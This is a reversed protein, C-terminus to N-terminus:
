EMCVWFGDSAFRHGLLTGAPCTDWGAPGLSTTAGSAVEYLTGADGVVNGVYFKKSALDNRACFWFGNSQFDNGVETTGEPCQHWGAVRLRATGFSSDVVDLWGADARVTGFYGEAGPPGAPVPGPLHVLLGDGAPLSVYLRAGLPDSVTNAPEFAGTAVDLLRVVGAASAFTVDSETAADHDRNVLLAYADDGVSFLGVTLPAASPLYVIDGPARPETAPPLPGNHFVKTSTAAALYRGMARISRNIDKVEDYQHTKAGAASLIGDGFNEPSGVPTWYTFYLVGQGGYALTHLAAWRKEPGTTDRHGNYSISQIYQGFPVGAAIAQARVVALNPFFEPGDTGDALFNYHDYTFSAPKVTSLFSAVYEDYTTTGLQAASAYNPFLNISAFHLPDRAAIGSSVAALSGFLSANPEDTVHYGLLAPSSGYDAVLGDLNADVNTGAVANLGRTDTVFVNLGAQEALDLMQTNYAANYTSGDCANAMTTFGADAIEQVRTASLDSSPLGCWMGIVIEGTPLPAGGHGAAGAAGGQGGDGASGAQGAEGSNGGTSADPSSGGTSGATGGTSFGASGANSASGGEDSGCALTSAIAVFTVVAPVRHQLIRM